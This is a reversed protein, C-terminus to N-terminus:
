LLAMLDSADLLSVGSGDFGRRNLWRARGEKVSCRSLGTGSTLGGVRGAWVLVFLKAWLSQRKSAMDMKLM